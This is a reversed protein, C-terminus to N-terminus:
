LLPMPNGREVVERVCHRARIERWRRPTRCGQAAKVETRQCARRERKVKKGGNEQRIKGGHRSGFCDLQELFESGAAHAAVLDEMSELGRWDNIEAKGIDIGM